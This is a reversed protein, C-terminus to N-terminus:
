LQPGGTDKEKKPTKDPSKDCSHSKGEDAPEPDYVAESTFGNDKLIQAAVKLVLEPDAEYDKPDLKGDYIATVTGDAEQKLSSGMSKALLYAAETAETQRLRGMDRWEATIQPTLGNNLALSDFADAKSQWAKLIEPTLKYNGNFTIPQLESSINGELQFHFYGFGRECDPTLQTVKLGDQEALYVDVKDDAM